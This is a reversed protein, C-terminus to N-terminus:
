RGYGFRTMSCTTARTSMSTQRQKENRLSTRLMRATASVTSARPRSKWGVIENVEDSQAM